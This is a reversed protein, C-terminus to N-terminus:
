AKALEIFATAAIASNTAKQKEKKNIKEEWEKDAKPPHAKPGGVTAPISAVQGSILSCRNKLRPKRAHGINITRHQQPKHRMGVYVATNFRGAHPTPFSNQVSASQIAQVARKILGKDVKESFQKPLEISNGKKGDLGIITAKM